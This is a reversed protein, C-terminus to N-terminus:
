VGDGGEMVDQEIAEVRAALEEWTDYLEPLKTRHEGHEVALLKSKEKDKYLDPNAMEMDIAELRAERKAIEDETKSLRQRLHKTRRHLENRREADRRKKRQKDDRPQREPDDAVPNEVAGLKDVAEADEKQRMYRYYEYDGPYSICQGDEIHLVRTAVRNIFYRDHSVVIMTGQYQSLASLLVDCSEMDLHNTPEDLLLLRSRRLLLKALAVRSKEGGSLVGIPKFADDGSFLFAGLITRSLPRTDLTAHCDMEELITNSLTLSDVQHQAYYGLLVNHGLEVLGDSPMTEKAILRLLTSKGHGNPGVLAVREGRQIEVTLDSYVENDGFRKSVRELRCAFRGPRPGEPFRFGIKKHDGPLEVREMKELQKVRSQVQRAKTAKYRFRDIFRETQKIKREQQARRRRLLALIEERQKVYADYNGSYLRFGDIDFSAVEEVMRNLFYRDHSVIVIAGEYSELFGELWELSPLDLHNTPEDMLLVEPRMLLLRALVLRMQWGGSLEQAPQDLSGIDFGMGTLIEKAQPRLQYGGGVEYANQLEGLVNSAAEIEASSAQEARLRELTSELEAMRGELELLDARGDLTMDLIPKDVAVTVEQPLLGVRVGSKRVVRGGDCEVDGVIMRFLTTKGSGNPGILGVRGRAELKWSVNEFLTRSGFTKKVRDLQIM